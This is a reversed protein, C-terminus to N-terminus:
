KCEPKRTRIGASDIVYPPDCNVAPPPPPPPLPGATRKAGPLASPPTRPTGAQTAMTPQPRETPPVLPVVTSPEPTASTATTSPSASAPARLGTSAPEAVTPPVSATSSTRFLSVALLAAGALAVCAVVAVVPWRPARRPAPLAAAAVAATSTEPAPPPQPEASRELRVTPPDAAAAALPQTKEALADSGLLVRAIRQVSLRSREHAFPLLALALEAVNQFRRAVDKELCRLIVAELEAPVDPRRARLPAPPETVIMVFCGSLTEAQFANAGTLLKYLVVGLAWVDSRHDVNKSSKIQEPSMYWPSGLVATPLTLSGQEGSGDTATVKSMGFDLVKVLASGDARHALFLNGPKLDRHVIGAAHAEAIAECAQLLYDIAEDVPLPGRARLLQDLDTGALHEMVIYPAGEVTRTVDLVRAVHESQVAAAARAERLFRAVVEANGAYQANLFKLAVRQGLEVHRAALVVGMGGAGLVREVEYKGGLVDGPRPVGSEDSGGM